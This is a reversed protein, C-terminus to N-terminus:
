VERRFRTRMSTRNLSTAIDEDSWRAQTSQRVCVVATRRLVAAPLLDSGSM